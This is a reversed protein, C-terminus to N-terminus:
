HNPKHPMHPPHPQHAPHPTHAKAPKRTLDGCTVITGAPLGNTAAAVHVNVSYAQAPDANFTSLPGEHQRRRFAQHDADRQWRRGPISVDLRSAIHRAASRTPRAGRGGESRWVPGGPLDRALTSGHGLAAFSELEDIHVV